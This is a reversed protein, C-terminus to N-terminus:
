DFVLHLLLYWCALQEAQASGNKDFQKAYFRHWGLRDNSMPISKSLLM